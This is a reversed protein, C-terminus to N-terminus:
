QHHVRALVQAIHAPNELELRLLPLQEDSWSCVAPKGLDVLASEEGFIEKAKASVEAVADALKNGGDGGRVCQMRGISTDHKGTGTARSPPRRPVYRPQADRTHAERSRSIEFNCRPTYRGPAGFLGPPNTMFVCYNDSGTFPMGIRGRLRLGSVRVLAGKPNRGSPRRSMGTM